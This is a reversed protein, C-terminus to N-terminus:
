RRWSCGASRAARVASSRPPSTCARPRRRGGLRDVPPSTCPISARHDQRTYGLSKLDKLVVGCGNPIDVYVVDPHSSSRRAGGRPRTRRPRRSRSRGQREHRRGGQDGAPHDRPRRGQGAPQRLVPRRREQRRADQGRLRRRGRQRRPQGVLVPGLQSREARGPHVPHRRPLRPRRAAYVPMSAPTGVDAAGLIASRTSPSSSARAGRPPRGTRTM